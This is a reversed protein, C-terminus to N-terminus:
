KGVKPCMPPKGQSLINCHYVHKAWKHLDSYTTLSYSTSYLTYVNTIKVFLGLLEGFICLRLAAGDVIPLLAQKGLGCGVDPTM